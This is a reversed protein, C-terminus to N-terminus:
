FRIGLYMPNRTYRYIGGSVIGSASKPFRPDVTTSARRFARLGMAIIAIGLALLAAALLVRGTYPRTLHQSVACDGVDSSRRDCVLISPPIKLELRRMAALTGLIDHNASPIAAGAAPCRSYRDEHAIKTTM